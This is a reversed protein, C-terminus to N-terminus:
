LTRAFMIYMVYKECFINNFMNHCYYDDKRIIRSSTRKIRNWRMEKLGNRRCNYRYESVDNVCRKM